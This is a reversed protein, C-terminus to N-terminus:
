ALIVDKQEQNRESQKTILQLIIDSSKKAGDMQLSISTSKFVLLAKIEETLRDTTLETEALVRAFGLKKLKLARKTQENETGEAYPVLLSLIKTKLLDM